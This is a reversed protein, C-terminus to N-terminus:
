QKVTAGVYPKSIRSEGTQDFAAISEPVPLSFSAGATSLQAATMGNSLAPNGSGSLKVTRTNGGNNALPALMTAYDFVAGSLANGNADFVQTGVISYSKSYTFGTAGEIDSPNETGITGKTNGSIISNRVTVTVGSAANIMVGAGGASGSKVKNATITCSLLNLTAPISASGVVGIGGGINSATNGYVTCNVLEGVAERVYIGGYAKGAVTSGLAGAGNGDITTNYLYCAGTWQYLGGAFSGASNNSINANYAYLNSQTSMSIGGGNVNTPTANNNQVTTNRLIMTANTFCFIGAGTNTSTNETVICNDLEVAAKGAIIGAGSNRAFGIGNITVNGTGSANGNKITIGRIIAKKDVVSPASVTVVHNALNGGDFTTTNVAPNSVAGTTANAPYGGILIINEKIEFTKDKADSALGGSVTTQPTYTGAAIHIFDGESLDLALAAQLSAANSWSSGDGAAGAKVYVNRKIVPPPDGAAQNIVITKEYDNTIWVTISGSRPTTIPNKAVKFLVLSDKDATGRSTSDNITIWASNSRVRWPLNSKFRIRYSSDVKSINLEQSSFELLPNEPIFSGTDLDQKACGSILLAIIFLPFCLFAATNTLKM